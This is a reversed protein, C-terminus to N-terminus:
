RVHYNSLVSCAETLAGILNIWSVFIVYEVGEEAFWSVQSQTDCFDDNTDVSELADCNGRYVTLVTDFDTGERCTNAIMAVDDAMINYWLGPSTAGSAFDLNAFSTDGTM